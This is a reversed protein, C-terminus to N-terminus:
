INKAASSNDRQTFLIVLINLGNARNSCAFQVLLFNMLEGSTLETTPKKRMENRRRDSQASIDNACM